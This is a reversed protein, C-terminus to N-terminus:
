IEISKYIQTTGAEPWVSPKLKLKFILVSAWTWIFKFKIRLGQHPPALFTGKLSMPTTSAPNTGRISYPLAPWQSEWSYKPFYYPYYPAWLKLSKPCSKGDSFECELLTHYLSISPMEHGEALNGPSRTLSCSKDWYWWTWPPMCLDTANALGTRNTGWKGQQCV